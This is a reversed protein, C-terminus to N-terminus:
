DLRNSYHHPNDKRKEEEWIEPQSEIVFPKMHVEFCVFHTFPYTQNKIPSDPEIIYSHGIVAQASNAVGVVKGTGKIVGNDFIVKQDQTYTYEGEMNYINSLQLICTLAIRPKDTNNTSSYHLAYQDHVLADGVKMPVPQYKEIPEKKYELSLGTRGTRTRVTTGCTQHELLGLKHSGPLYFLCSNNPNVDQLPIWFTVIDASSEFYAGDQHPATIKYNPHKIFFQMNLVKSEEFLTRIKEAFKKIEPRSELHQIQKPGHECMFVNSSESSKVYDDLNLDKALEGIEPIFNELVAYGDTDLKKRFDNM